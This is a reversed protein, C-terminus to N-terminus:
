SACTLPSSTLLLFHHESARVASITSSQQHSGISSIHPDLFFSSNVHFIHRGGKKDEGKRRGSLSKLLFPAVGKILLLKIELNATFYDRFNNNLIINRRFKLVASCVGCFINTYIKFSTTRPRLFEQVQSAQAHKYVPM